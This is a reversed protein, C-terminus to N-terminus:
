PKRYTIDLGGRTGVRPTWDLYRKAASVDFPYPPKLSAVRYRSLPMDKKLLGGLFEVGRAAAMMFWRPMYVVKISPLARRAIEVFERQTIPTPDVLQIVQGLAKPNQAAAMLGDVVDDVYM